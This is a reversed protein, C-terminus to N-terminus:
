FLDENQTSDKRIKLIDVDNGIMISADEDEDKKSKQFGSNHKNLKKVNGVIEHFPSPGFELYGKHLDNDLSLCMLLTYAVVEYYSMFMSGTIYTLTLSVIVSPSWAPLSTGDEIIELAFALFTGINLLVIILKLAFTFISIVKMSYQFELMYKVNMMFGTWQGDCFNDGGIACYALGTENIYDCLKEFIALSCDACAVVCKYVFYVKGLNTLRKAPIVFIVNIIWVPIMVASAFAVTGMNNIHTM